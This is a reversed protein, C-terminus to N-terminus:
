KERLELYPSNLWSLTVKDGLDGELIVGTFMPMSPTSEDKLKHCTGCCSSQTTFEYCHATGKTSNM